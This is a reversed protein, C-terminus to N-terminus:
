KIFQELERISILRDDVYYAAAPKGLYLENYKLGWKRMQEETEKKWNIGSASGRATYLIIDFGKEYLKNILDIVDTNPLAQNYDNQPSLSAIIGDIDFCITKEKPNSCSLNILNMKQTVREMDELTDIDNLKSEIIGLIKSGTMSKKKLITDSKVVDINATQLYTKPLFQRPENYPESIENCEILPKLTMDENLFWMKYPTHPSEVVTRVSDSGPDNILKKIADDIAGGERIPATPRLHVCYDPVYNENEKLWNLAHQFVELDTSNDKALEDPRIFPVEAGYQKAIEAYQVSDTSVLVRDILKSELAQIITWAILPKGAISRINKHVVTKSGSRAPILAIIQGKKKM